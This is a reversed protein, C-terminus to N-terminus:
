QKTIKYTIGNLNILYIGTPYGDLSIVTNETDKTETKLILKGDMTLVSVPIGQPLNSIIFRNGDQTFVPFSRSSISTAQQDYYIRQINDMPYSFTVYKTNVVAETGQFTIVPLDELEYRVEGGEVLLISLVQKQSMVNMGVLFLLIFTVVHNKM